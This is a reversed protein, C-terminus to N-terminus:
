KRPAAGAQEAAFDVARDVITDGKKRVVKEAPGLKPAVKQLGRKGLSKVETIAKSDGRPPAPPQTQLQAPTGAQPQAPPPAYAPPPPGGRSGPPGGQAAASSALLAAVASAVLRSM